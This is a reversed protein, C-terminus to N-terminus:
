RRACRTRWTPPRGPMSRRSRADPRCVVRPKAAPVTPAESTPRDLVATAVRHTTPIAQPNM